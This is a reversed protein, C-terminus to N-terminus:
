GTAALRSSIVTTSGRGGAVLWLGFTCFDLFGCIGFEVFEAFEVFGADDYMQDLVSGGSCLWAFRFLSLSLSFENRYVSKVKMAM